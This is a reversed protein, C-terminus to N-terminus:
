IIIVLDVLVSELSVIPWIHALNKVLMIDNYVIWEINLFSLSLNTVVCIFRPPIISIFYTLSLCSGYSKVYM